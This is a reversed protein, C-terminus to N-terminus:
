EDTSEVASATAAGGENMVTDEESDASPAPPKSFFAGIGESQETTNRTKKTMKSENIPYSDDPESLVDLCSNHFIISSIHAYKGWLFTFEEVGRVVAGPPSM